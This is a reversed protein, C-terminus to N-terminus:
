SFTWMKGTCGNKKKIICGHVDMYFRALRGLSTSKLKRHYANRSPQSPPVYLSAAGRYNPMLLRYKTREGALSSWGPSTSSWGRDLSARTSRRSVVHGGDRPPPGKVIPDTRGEGSHHHYAKNGRGRRSSFDREGPYYRMCNHGCFPLCVHM